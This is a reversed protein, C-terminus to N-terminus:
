RNKIFKVGFTLYFCDVCTPQIGPKKLYRNYGLLSKVWNDFVIPDMMENGFKKCALDNIIFKCFPNAFVLSSFASQRSILSQFIFNM